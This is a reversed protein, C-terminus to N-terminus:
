PSALAVMLSSTAFNLSFYFTQMKRFSGRFFKEGRTKKHPADQTNEVQRLISATPFNPRAFKKKGKPIARKYRETIVEVNHRM